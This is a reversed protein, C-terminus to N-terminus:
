LRARVAIRRRMRTKFGSRIRLVFTHELATVTQDTANHSRFIRQKPIILFLIIHDTFTSFSSSLSYFSVRSLSFSYIPSTFGASLNTSVIKFYM